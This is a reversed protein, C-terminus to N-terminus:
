VILAYTRTKLVRVEVLQLEGAKLKLYIKRVVPCFVTFHNADCYCYASATYRYPWPTATPRRASPPVHMRRGKRTQQCTRTIILLLCARSMELHRSAYWIHRVVATQLIANCRRQLPCARRVASRCCQYQLGRTSIDRM